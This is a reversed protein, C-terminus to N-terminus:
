ALLGLMTASIGGFGIGIRSVGSVIQSVDGAADMSVCPSQDIFISAIKGKHGDFKSNRGDATKREGSVRRNCVTGFRRHRKPAKRRRLRRDIRFLWHRVLSISNTKELSVKTHNPTILVSSLNVLVGTAVNCVLDISKSQIRRFCGANLVRAAPQHTNM